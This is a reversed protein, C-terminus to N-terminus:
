FWVFAAHPARNTVLDLSVSVDRGDRQDFFRSGSFDVRVLAANKAGPDCADCSTLEVTYSARTTSLDQLIEMLNAVTLQSIAAEPRTCNLLVERSEDDVDVRCIPSVETSSDGLGPRAVTLFREHGALHVELATNLSALTAM